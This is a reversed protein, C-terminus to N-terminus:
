GYCEICEEIYEYAEARTEYTCSKGYASREHVRVVGASQLARQHGELGDVDSVQWLEGPAPLPTLERWHARVWAKNLQQAM